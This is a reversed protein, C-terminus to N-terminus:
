DNAARPLAHAVEPVVVDATVALCANQKAKEAKCWADFAARGQQQSARDCIVVRANFNSPLGRAIGLSRKNLSGRAIPAARSRAGEKNLKLSAYAAGANKTSYFIKGLPGQARTTGHTFGTQWDPESKHFQRERARSLEKQQAREDQNESGPVKKM